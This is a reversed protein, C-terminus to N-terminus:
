RHGDSMGAFAITASHIRGDRIHDSLERRVIELIKKEVETKTIEFKVSAIFRRVDPEYDSRCKQLLTRLQASRLPESQGRRILVSELAESLLGELEGITNTNMM